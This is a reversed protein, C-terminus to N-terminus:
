NEVEEIAAKINKLSDAMQTMEKIADFNQIEYLIKIADISYKANEEIVKLDEKSYGEENLSAALEKIKEAEAEKGNVLRIQKLAVFHMGWEMLFSSTKGLRELDAEAESIDIYGHNTFFANLTEHNLNAKETSDMATYDEVTKIIKSWEADNIKRETNTLDMKSLITESFVKKNEEPNAEAEEEQMEKANDAIEKMKSMQSMIGGDDSGGCSAMFTLAPILLVLILKKM